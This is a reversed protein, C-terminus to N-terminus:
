NIHVILEQTKPVKRILQQLKHYHYTSYELTPGTINPVASLVM